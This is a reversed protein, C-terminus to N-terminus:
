SNYGDIGVMRAMRLVWGDSGVSGHLAVSLTGVGGGHTHIHCERACVSDCM